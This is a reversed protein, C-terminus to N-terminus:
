RVKESPVLSTGSVKLNDSNAKVADKLRSFYRDFATMIRNRDGTTKNFPVKIPAFDADLLGRGQLREVKLTGDGMLASTGEFEIMFVSFMPDNQIIGNSFESKDKGLAIRATIHPSLSTRYDVEIYSKPFYKRFSKRILEALVQAGEVSERICREYTEIISRM